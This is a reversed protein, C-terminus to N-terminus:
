HCIEGMLKYSTVDGSFVNYSADACSKIQEVLKAPMLM